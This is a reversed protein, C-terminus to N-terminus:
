VAHRQHGGDRTQEFPALGVPCVWTSCCPPESDHVIREGFLNQDARNVAIGEWSTGWSHHHYLGGGGKREERGGQRARKGDVAGGGWGMWVVGKNLCWSTNNGCSESGHGVKGKIFVGEQSLLALRRRQLKKSGFWKNALPPPYRWRILLRGVGNSGLLCWRNFCAAAHRLIAPTARGTSGTNVCREPKQPHIKHATTQTQSTLPSSRRPQALSLNM